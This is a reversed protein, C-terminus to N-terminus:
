CWCWRAHAGAARSLASWHSPPALECWHRKEKGCDGARTTRLAEPANSRIRRSQARQAQVRQVRSADTVGGWCLAEAHDLPAGKVRPAEHSRQKKRQGSGPHADGAVM